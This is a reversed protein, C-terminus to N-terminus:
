RMLISNTAWTYNGLLDWEGDDKLEWIDYIAQERDGNVNLTINGLTGTYNKLTSNLKSKIENPEVSNAQLMAKGLIWVMDYSSYVFTNPDHGFLDTLNERLLKYYENNSGAVQVTTLSIKKSFELSKVNNIIQSEKTIAGPGFWPVKDLHSNELKGASEMIDSIEGFGLFLVAVKEAGYEGIYGRVKEDLKTMNVSEPSDRHYIFGDDVTGTFNEVFTKNIADHIDNGWIDDRWLPIILDIGQHHLLTALARGQKEDDPVLRFLNDIKALSPSSSCCSILLMNKFDPFELIRSINESSELGLIIDIGEMHLKNIKERAVIPNTASDEIVPHIQWGKNNKTLYDNFDNIALLTTNKNETGHTALDGTIPFILGVYVDGSLDNNEYIKEQITYTSDAMDIEMYKIGLVIGAIVIFSVVTIIGIKSSFRM